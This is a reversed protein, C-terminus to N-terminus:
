GRQYRSAPRKLGLNERLTVGEYETRSLGRRQLEPVVKEVFDDLMGPLYPPMVNFGDAAGNVFWNEMHDAITQPTGRVIGHGRLVARLYLQRITLNERRAMETFTRLGTHSGITTTIEPLPGDLPYGSLDISGLMEGLLQLGIEPHVLSQLKEFIDDAQQQSEGIIPVLGPMIKLDDPERGFKALRGKLSQYFQRANDINLGLAFVVDAVEASLEQGAESTGAQVMVPRGQPTRPVNLPGRVSFHEGKHNLPHVKSPDFFTGTAKDRVFADEDWSDWLARVVRAFEAARDYRADHEMHAERGFNGAEAINVSTVLNWGARGGSIHDLSAFKRAVHYPENYTTTATAVLGIHGTLSSLASLLTVPEFSAVYTAVRSARELPWARMAPSDALFLMDFKGREATRALEVYHRFDVSAGAYADPYRWSAIHHGTPHLFVGLKLQGARPPM